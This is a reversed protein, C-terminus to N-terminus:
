GGGADTTVPCPDACNWQGNACLCYAPLEVNCPSPYQCTLGEETCQSHQVPEEAGPCSYAGSDGLYPCFDQPTCSWLSSESACNCNWLPCEASPPLPYGCSAPGTCPEGNLPTPSGPCDEVDGVTGCGTTPSTNAVWGGQKCVFIQCGDSSPCQAQSSCGPLPLCSADAGLTISGDQASPADSATDADGSAGDHISADGEPGTKGGCGVMSVVFLALHHARM